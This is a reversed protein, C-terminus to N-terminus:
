IVGWLGHEDWYDPEHTSSHDFWGNRHEEVNSENTRFRQRGGDVLIVLDMRVRIDIIKRVKSFDPFWEDHVPWAMLVLRDFEVGRHTALNAVTGGHSHAFFDPVGLGQDGIWQQLLAADARRASRSYNGTWKFSTDHVHVDPRNTKLAEYFDGGPRYWEGNAAFTGHTIVATNSKRRRKRSVPQKVVKRSALSKMPDIQSMAAMAVRSVLGDRSRACREITERIKPRLRTTERAGVAGALAVLPHPSLMAAEFMAAVAKMSPKEFLERAFVTLERELAADKEQRLEKESAGLRHCAEEVRFHRRRRLQGLEPLPFDRSKEVPLHGGLIAARVALLYAAQSAAVSQEDAVGARPTVTFAERPDIPEFHRYSM